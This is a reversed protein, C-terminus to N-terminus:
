LCEFNGPSYMGLIVNVGKVVIDPQSCATLCDNLLRESVLELGRQSVAAIELLGSSGPM